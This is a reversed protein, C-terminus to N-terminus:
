RIKGEKLKISIKHNSLLEDAQQWLENHRIETGDEKIYGNSKWKSLSNLGINLYGQPIHIELEVPRKLERLGMILTKLYTLNMSEKERSMSYERKYEQGDKKVMSLEAIALYKTIEITMCVKEVPEVGKSIIRELNVYSRKMIM